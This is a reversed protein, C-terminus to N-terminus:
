GGAMEPRLQLLLWLKARKWDRSVTDSSVQLVEAVEEISLGGFYRLEVVKARRPDQQELATLAEDLATIEVGPSAAAMNEELPQVWTAGGRKLAARERAEDVLVRRMVRAAVSFFHTRDNWPIRSAGILRLYAEHILATTQLLHGPRENKLQHHALRRLERYVLPVLSELAHEDGQRWALLLATVDQSPM